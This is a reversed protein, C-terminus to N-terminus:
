YRKKFSHPCLMWMFDLYIINKKKKKQSQFYPKTYKWTRQLNDLVLMSHWCTQPEFRTLESSSFRDQSDGRSKKVSTHSLEHSNIKWVRTKSWHKNLILVHGSQYAMISFSKTQKGTPDMSSNCSIYKKLPTQRFSKRNHPCVAGTETDWKLQSKRWCKGLKRGDHTGTM